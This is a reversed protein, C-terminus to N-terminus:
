WSTCSSFSSTVQRLANIIAVRRSSEIAAEKRSLFCDGAGPQDGPEAVGELGSAHQERGTGSVSLRCEELLREAILVPRDGPDTAGLGLAGGAPQQRVDEIGDGGGGWAGRIRQRLVEGDSGLPDVRQGCDADQERVDGTQEDLGEAQDEVVGLM